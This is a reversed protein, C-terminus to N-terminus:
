STIEGTSMMWYRATTTEGSADDYVDPFTFVVDTETIEIKATPLTMKFSGPDTRLHQEMASYSEHGCELAYLWNLLEQQGQTTDMLHAARVLVEIRTPMAM